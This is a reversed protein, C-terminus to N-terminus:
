PAIKRKINYQLNHPDAFSGRRHWAVCLGACYCTFTLSLIFGLYISYRIFDQNHIKAMSVIKITYKRIKINNMTCYYNGEEGRTARLIYLTNYIDITLHPEEKNAMNNRYSNNLLNNDKYWKIRPSTGGVTCTLAIHGNEAMQVLTGNIDDYSATTKTSNSSSKLLCTSTMEYDPIQRIIKSLLPCTEYIKESRCSIAYNDM